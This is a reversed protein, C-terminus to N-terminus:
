LLTGHLLRPVYGIQQAPKEPGRPRILTVTRRKNCKYVVPTPDASTVLDNILM